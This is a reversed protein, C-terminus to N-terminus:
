LKMIEMIKKYEKIIYKRVPPTLYLNSYKINNRYPKQHQEPPTM